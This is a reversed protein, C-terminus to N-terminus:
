NVLVVQTSAEKLNFQVWRDAILLPGFPTKSTDCADVIALRRKTVDRFAFLAFIKRFHRPDDSCKTGCKSCKSFSLSDIEAYSIAAYDLIQCCFSLVRSSM